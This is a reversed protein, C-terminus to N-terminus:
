GDVRDRLAGPAVRQARDRALVADVETGASDRCQLTQLDLVQGYVGLM